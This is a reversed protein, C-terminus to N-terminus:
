VELLEGAAWAKIRPDELDFQPCLEFFTKDAVCVRQLVRPICGSMDGRAHQLAINDWIVLDGNYWRHEYM